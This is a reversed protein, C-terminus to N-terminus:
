SRHETMARQLWAKAFIWDRVVTKVSVGLATATEEVTSGAFFRLDVVRAKRDDLAALAQLADDLRILDEDYAGPGLLGDDLTIRVLDGGRKDANRARALDVLIRRMLRASMALFHARDQWEIQDLEVLRLFAENVLATASVSREAHEGALCRRAIRNLEREVSPILQHLASEDGDAWARLWGTFEGAGM